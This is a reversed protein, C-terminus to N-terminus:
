VFEQASRMLSHAHQYDMRIPGLLGIMGEKTSLLVSGCVQGFACAEGLRITPDEFAERRLEELTDDLHDLVESLSVVRQWNQFEPQGFLQSLGTYFTNAPYFGVISALGSLESLTKALLKMKAESSTAQAAVELASRERKAAPKDKLCNEVYVRYGRETPVRGGSTHPQMLFGGRDLEGMWNRITAPSVDLKYRKRLSGSAVPEATAVHEEVILQLLHLLRDEM